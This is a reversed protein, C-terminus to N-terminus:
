WDVFDGPAVETTSPTAYPPLPPVDPPRFFDDVYWHRLPDAAGGAAALPVLPHSIAVKSRIEGSRRLEEYLARLPMRKRQGAPSQDNKKKTPSDSDAAKKTGSAEQALEQEKIARLASRVTVDAMVSTAADVTHSHVTPAFYAVHAMGDDALGSSSFSVVNPADIHTFLSQAKCTDAFFFIRNYRGLRHMMRFTHAIETATLFEYDHFKTFGLGSHSGILIFINSNRTTPLHIELDAAQGTAPRGDSNLRRLSRTRLGLLLQLVSPATLEHVGLGFVDVEGESSPLPASANASSPGSVSSPASAMHAEHRVSERHDEVDTTFLMGRHGRPTRPDYSHDDALLVLIRDSPLGHWRLMRQALLAGATHRYNHWYRSSSIIVAWNDSHTSNGEDLAPPRQFPLLTTAAIPSATALILIVLTRIVRELRLQMALAM